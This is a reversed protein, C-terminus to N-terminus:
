RRSPSEEAHHAGLLTKLESILIFDCRRLLEEIEANSPEEHMNDPFASSKAALRLLEQEGLIGRKRFPLMLAAFAITIREL